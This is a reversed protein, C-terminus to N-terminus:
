KVEEIAYPGIVSEDIKDHNVDYMRRFGIFVKSMDLPGYNLKWVVKGDSDKGHGGELIEIENGDEDYIGAAIFGMDEPGDYEIQSTHEITLYTGLETTVASIKDVKIGYDLTDEVTKYDKKSKVFSKNDVTVKVFESGHEANEFGKYEHICLKETYADLGPTDQISSYCYLEGNKGYEYWERMAGGAAGASQLAMGCSVRIIKRGDRKVYDGVTGKTEGPIELISVSDKLNYKSINTGLVTYKDPEKPTVTVRVYLTYDDCVVEDVTYNIYQLDKGKNDLVEIQPERDVLREAEESIQNGKNRFSTLIDSNTVAAYVGGSIVTIGVIAAVAAAAAKYRRIKMAREEKWSYLVKQHLADDPKVDVHLACKLARDLKDNKGEYRM